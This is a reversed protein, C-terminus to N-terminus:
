DGTKSDAKKKWTKREGKDASNNRLHKATVSAAGIVPELDDGKPLFKIKPNQVKLPAGDAIIEADAYLSLIEAIKEIARAEMENLNKGNNRALDILASNLVVSVSGLMRGSVIKEKATIDNTKKSDRVERVENTDALVGTIVMPGTREGRGTEDIGIVLRPNLNLAALIEAKVNGAKEGQISLKGSEYLTITCGDKKARQEEFYSTTAAQEYGDLVKKVKGKESKGFNLTEQM